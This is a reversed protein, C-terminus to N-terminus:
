TFTFQKPDKRIPTSYFINVLNIAAYQTGAAINIQEILWVIGPITVAVYSVDQSVNYYDVTM